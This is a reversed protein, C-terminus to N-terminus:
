RAIAFCRPCLSPAEVKLKQIVGVRRMDRLYAKAMRRTTFYLTGKGLNVKYKLQM